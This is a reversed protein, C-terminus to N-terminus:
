NGPNAPATLASAAPEAPAAAPIADPVTVLRLKTIFVPKKPLAGPFNVSKGGLPVAAIADVVEMGKTVQGFVAYGTSNPADGPKPDLGQANIDALNIYFEATGSRPKDERAMAIAGRKNSLGNGSELAVPKHTPRWSGNANMSGAQIVFGPVVRYFVTGNYHGEKAYRVFNAVTLPAKAADLTVVIEGLSTQIHAETAAEAPLSAAVASAFAAALVPLRTRM